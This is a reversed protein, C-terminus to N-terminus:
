LSRHPHQGNIPTEGSGNPTFTAFFYVLMGLAMVFMIASEVLTVWSVSVKMSEGLCGCRVQKKQELVGIIGIVNFFLVTAAILNVIIPSVWAVYAVGLGIQILPYLYGYVPLKQAIPDYQQFMRASKRLSITQMLGFILFYGAMLYQMFVHLQIYGELITAVGAFVLVAIFATILLRYPKVREKLSKKAHSHGGDHCHCEGDTGDCHCVGAHDHMTEHAHNM